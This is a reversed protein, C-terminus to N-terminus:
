HTESRMGMMIERLQNRMACSGNRIKCSCSKQFYMCALKEDRGLGLTGDKFHAGLRFCAWESGMEAARTLYVLGLSTNRQVGWGNVYMDGVYTTGTPEGIDAVRKLWYFAVQLDKDLGLKGHFFAKGLSLMAIMDGDRARQRLDDVQKEENFRKEWRSAIEGKLRGDTALSRILKRLQIAPYTRKRILSNTVPSRVEHGKFTEFWSQIARREYVIGDEATVPDFPIEFSIPCTYVEELRRQEEGEELSM